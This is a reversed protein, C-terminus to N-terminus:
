KTVEARLEANEKELQEIRKDQEVQHKDQEVQHKEEDIQHLTLEEIKQLLKVQMSALDIGNAKAEAESPIGPLHGDKQIASEEDSLSPLKYGPKFVFDAYNNGSSAVFSTAHVQGAVDLMYQPSTTGIGVNGNSLIQLANVVYGDYTQFLHGGTGSAYYKLGQTAASTGYNLIYADDGNNSDYFELAHGALVATNGNVTLTQAPSTTGIGVNGGHPALVLNKVATGAIGTEIFGFDNTSDYGLVLRQNTNTSGTIHFQGTTLGNETANASVDLNTSPTATGIGVNTGGHPGLVLNKAATGAIGAEIFGFDNTTDYGFVLRQNANTSGTIQFQGTALGGETANASVNLNTSPTTTGIGVNNSSNVYIGTGQAHLQACLLVLVAYFSSRPSMPQLKPRCVQSVAWRLAFAFIGMDRKKRARLMREKPSCGVGLM